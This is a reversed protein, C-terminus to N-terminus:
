AGFSGDRMRDIGDPQAARYKLQQASRDLLEIGREGRMRYFEFRRAPLGAQRQRPTHAFQPRTMSIECRELLRKVHRLQKKDVVWM